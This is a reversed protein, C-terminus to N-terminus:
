TGTHLEIWFKGGAVLCWLVERSRGDKEGSPACLLRVISSEGSSRWVGRDKGGLEGTEVQFCGTVLFCANKPKMTRCGKAKKM